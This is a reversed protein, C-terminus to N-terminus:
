QLTIRNQQFNVRFCIWGDGYVGSALIVRTKYRFDLISLSLLHVSIKTNYQFEAFPYEFIQRIDLQNGAFHDRERSSHIYIYPLNIEQSRTYKYVFRTSNKVNDVYFHKCPCLHTFHSM